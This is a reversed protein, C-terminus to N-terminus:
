ALSPNNVHVSRIRKVQQGSEKGLWRTMLDLEQIPTLGVENTASIFSSYWAHYNEPKDDFQYLGSTVLERRALYQALPEIPNPTAASQFCQPVYSPKNVHVTPTPRMVESKIEIKPPDPLNPPLLRMSEEPNPKSFLSHQPVDGIDPINVPLMRTIYGDLSKKDPSHVVPPKFSHQSPPLSKLEIQEQVYDQTREMKNRESHTRESNREEVESTLIAQAMEMVQAEVTAADAERQLTLVELQTDIRTTEVKIEAERVAKEMKLKAEQAAYSARVKAAEAKARARAVSGSSTTTNSAM